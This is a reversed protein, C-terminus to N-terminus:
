NTEDDHEGCVNRHFGDARAAPPPRHGPRGHPQSAAALKAVLAVGATADWGSSHGTTALADLCAGLGPAGPSILTRMLSHLAAAGEGEAACRLHAYSITHTRVRAWRLLWPGLTDAADPWGFSRLAILVGGLLDDGSPTLGPGLGILTEAARPPPAQAIEGDMVSALWAGLSAIGPVAAEALAQDLGSAGTGSPKGELFWSIAPALGDTPARRRCEAALADLCERLVAREWTQASLVPQWIRAGAFPFALRGDFRLTGDKWELQTERTVGFDPWNWASPIAALINLPGAGLSLPGVCVVVGHTAQCYVSRRFAALVRWTSGDALATRAHRGWLAVPITRTGGSHGCALSRSASAERGTLEPSSSAGLVVM